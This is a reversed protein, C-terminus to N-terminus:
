SGDPVDEVTVRRDVTQSSKESYVAVKENQVPASSGPKDETSVAQVVSKRALMMEDDTSESDQETSGNSCPKGGRNRASRDTTAIPLELWGSSLESAPREHIGQCVNGWYEDPRRTRQPVLPAPEVKTEESPIAPPAHPWESRSSPMLHRPRTSPSDPLSHISTLPLPLFPATQQALSPQQRAITPPGGNTLFPAAPTHSSMPPFLSASGREHISPAHHQYREMELAAIRRELEELRLLRSRSAKSRLGDLLGRGNLHVRGSGAPSTKDGPWQCGFHDCSPTSPISPALKPPAFPFTSATSWSAGSGLVAPAVEFSPVQLPPLSPPPPQPYPHFPVPQTYPYYYPMQHTPVPPLGGAPQYSLQAQWYDLSPAQPTSHSQAAQPYLYPSYLHMQLRYDLDRLLNSRLSNIDEAMSMSRNHSERMEHNTPGFAEKPGSEFPFLGSFKDSRGLSNM